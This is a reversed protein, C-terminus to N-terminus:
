NCPVSEDSRIASGSAQQWLGSPCDISGNGPAGYSDVQSVGFQQHGRLIKKMASRYPERLANVSAWNGIDLAPNLQVCSGAPFGPAQRGDGSTAPSVFLPHTTGNSGCYTDMRQRHQIATGPDGAFCDAFDDPTLLGAILNIKSGSTGPHHAQDYTSLWYGKRTVTDTSWFRYEGCNWRTSPVGSDRPTYGPPTTHYTEWSNGTVSDVIVMNADGSGSYPGIAAAMWTPMPMTFPGAGVWGNSNAYMSITPLQSTDGRYYATRGNGNSFPGLWEKLNDYATGGLLWWNASSLMAASQAHIPPSAPIPTNFASSSIYPVYGSSPPPAPPIRRRESVSIRGGRAAPSM